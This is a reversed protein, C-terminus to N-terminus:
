KILSFMYFIEAAIQKCRALYTEDQQPTNDAKKPDEYTTAIRLDVNPIYPCNEEANGCTMIAAFNASPNVSDNYVKSFCVCSLKDGYGVKFRTNDTNLDTSTINFGIIKLAKIAHTNFATIETGGSFTHVKKLQYYHAATAAWVQGFHSRRSNHTCIYVLNIVEQKDKKTQIYESIKQLILKRENPITNFDTSLSDCFTKLLPYM